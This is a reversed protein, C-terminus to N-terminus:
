ESRHAPTEDAWESQAWLLSVMGYPDLATACRRCYVHRRDPLSLYVADAFGVVQGCHDCVEHIGGAQRGKVYARITQRRKGKPKSM